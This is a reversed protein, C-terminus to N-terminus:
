RKKGMWINKYQSEWNKADKGKKNKASYKGNYELGITTMSSVCFDTNM